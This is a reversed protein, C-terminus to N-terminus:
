SPTSTQFEKGEERPTSHEATERPLLHMHLGRHAWEPDSHSTSVHVEHARTDTSTSALMKEIATSAEAAFFSEVLDDVSQWPNNSSTDINHWCGFSCPSFVNAHWLSM